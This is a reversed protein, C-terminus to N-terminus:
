YTHTELISNILEEFSSYDLRQPLCPLINALIDHNFIDPKYSKYDRYIKIKPGRKVFGVTIATLIMAHFDSLGTEATTTSKQSGKGNTLILDICTPNSSKFCTPDRVMNTFHYSDM